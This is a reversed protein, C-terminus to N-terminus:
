STPQQSGFNPAYKLNYPKHGNILLNRVSIRGMVDVVRECLFTSSLFPASRVMNKYTIFVEKRYELFLEEEEGENVFDFDDSFALKRQLVGMLLLLQGKLHESVEDEKKVSDVFKVVFDM